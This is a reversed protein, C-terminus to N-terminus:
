LNIQDDMFVVETYILVKSPLENVPSLLAFTHNQLDVELIVVYGFVNHNLVEPSILKATSVAMLHHQLKMDPKMYVVKTHHDDASVGFPLCSDPLKEAGLQCIEVSEFPVEIRYPKLPLARTGYFYRQVMAERGYSRVNQSRDEIGSSKPFRLTKVFNPLDRNLDMYLREHELCIVLDAEFSEAITLLTKYGEGTIYGCTNIIMGSICANRSRKMWEATNEAMKRILLEYLPMNATPTTSGFCYSIQQELQFGHVPDALQDVIAASISGPVTLCNQGVDLDVFIPSRGKRVAYNCLIRCLTSKGVDTPGVVLVVFGRSAEGNETDRCIDELGAHTNAFIAMPTNNSVYAHVTPGILELTCGQYTFVATRTGSPFTYKKNLQLDTGFIEASGTVLELTVGEKTDGAM